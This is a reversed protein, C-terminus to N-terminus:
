KAAAKEGLPNNVSGPPRQVVRRYGTNKGGRMTCRRRKKPACAEEGCQMLVLPPRANCKQSHILSYPDRTAGSVGVWYPPQAERSWRAM